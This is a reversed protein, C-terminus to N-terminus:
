TNEEHNHEKILSYTYLWQPEVLSLPAGTCNHPWLRHRPRTKPTELAKRCLADVKTKKLTAMATMKFTFFTSWPLMTAHMM